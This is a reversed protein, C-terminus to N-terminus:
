KSMIRRMLDVLAEIQYAMTVAGPDIHGVGKNSQYSARGRLAPMDITAQAGQNAEQAVRQLLVDVAENGEIGKELVEVAPALADIMTKSGVESKGRKKMDELMTKYTAYLEEIGMFEAETLEKSAALYAGGYLVGSSGGIVSMMTMGITKFLQEFSMDRLEKEKSLLKEFGMNMNNWHDGDGTALDLETVYEQNQRLKEYVINLYDVYESSNIGKM